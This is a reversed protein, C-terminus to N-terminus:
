VTSGAHRVLALPDAVRVQIHLACIIYLFASAKDLNPFQLLTFLSGPCYLASFIYFRRAGEDSGVAAM